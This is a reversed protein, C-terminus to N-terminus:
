PAATQEALHSERNIAVERDGALKRGLNTMPHEITRYLVVPVIVLSAAVGIWRIPTALGPIARLWIWLIPVHALYIGYSYKAVRHAFWTAASKPLEAVLPILAGLALCPWWGLSLHAADPKMLAFSAAAAVIVLPWTWAPLRGGGGRRLLHYALVGGMFCPGFSFVSLRWMGPVREVLPSQMALGLAVFVLVMALMDRTGRRALLFCLPLLVYMQVELPLSWLVGQIDREGTLNQVLPLNSVLAGTSPFVRAMGSGDPTVHSPLRFFAAILIIVIALPYIRFARRLYFRGAWGPESGSRELSSMLVLSTHVFFLLVGLRGVAWNWNWEGSAHANAAFVHDALVLLVAVARLVDLNREPLATRTTEHRTHEM